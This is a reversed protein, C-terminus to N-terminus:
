EAQLTQGNTDRLFTELTEILKAEDKLQCEWVVLYAWGLAHLDQQAQADRVLNRDLKENWFEVRTAPRKGKSCSHGHWFCGHVFIVKCYKPLIIDPSGPLERNHLRFRYGLRHLLQRVRVEPKTNANKVRSMMASRQEPTWKDAM